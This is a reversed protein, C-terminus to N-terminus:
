GCQEEIMMAVVDAARDAPHPSEIEQPELSSARYILWLGHSASYLAVCKGLEGNIQSGRCAASMIQARAVTAIAGGFVHLVQIARRHKWAESARCETAHAVSDTFVFGCEPQDCRVRDHRKSQESM